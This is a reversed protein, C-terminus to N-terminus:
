DKDEEEPPPFVRLIHDRLHTLEKLTDGLDQRLADLEARLDARLKEFDDQNVPRDAM